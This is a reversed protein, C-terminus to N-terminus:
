WRRDGRVFLVDKLIRKYLQEIKSDMFVLGETGCAPACALNANYLADYFDRTTEQLTRFHGVIMQRYEEGLLVVAHEIAADRLCAATRLTGTRMRATVGSGIDAKHPAECEAIIAEAARYPLRETAFGGASAPASLLCIATLLIAADRIRKTM